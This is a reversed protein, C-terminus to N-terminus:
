GPDFFGLAIFGGTCCNASLSLRMGENGQHRPMAAIVKDNVIKYQVIGCGGEGASHWDKDDGAGTGHAQVGCGHRPRPLARRLADQKAIVFARLM